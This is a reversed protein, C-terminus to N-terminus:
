VRALATLVVFVLLVGVLWVVPGILVRRLLRRRDDLTSEGAAAEEAMGLVEPEDPVDPVDPSTPSASSGGEDRGRGARRGGARDPDPVATMARLTGRGVDASSSGPWSRQSVDVCRAEM